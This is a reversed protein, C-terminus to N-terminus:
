LVPTMAKLVQMVTGPPLEKRIFNKGYDYSYFIYDRLESKAYFIYYGFDGFELPTLEVIYDELNDFVTKIPEFDEDVRPYCTCMLNHYFNDNNLIKSTIFRCHQIKEIDSKLHNFIMNITYNGGQAPFFRDEIIFNFIGLKYTSDNPYAVDYSVAFKYPDGFIM